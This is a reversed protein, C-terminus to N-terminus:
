DSRILRHVSEYNTDLNILWYIVAKSVSFLFSFCDLTITHFSLPLRSLLSPSLDLYLQPGPLQRQWPTQCLSGAVVESRWCILPSACRVLAQCHLTDLVIRVLYPCTTFAFSNCNIVAGLPHVAARSPGSKRM